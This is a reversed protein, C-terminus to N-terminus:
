SKKRRSLGLDVAKHYVSSIPKNIKESIEKANIKRYNEKLFYINEETWTSRGEFVERKLGIKSAKDWIAIKKRNPFHELIEEWSATPYHNVLWDLEQRTYRMRYHYGRKEFGLEEVRKLLQAESRGWVIKMLRRIPMTGYHQKILDDEEPTFPIPM